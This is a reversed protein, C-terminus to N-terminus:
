RVIACLLARILRLQLICPWATITWVAKMAKNREELKALYDALRSDHKAAVAAASPAEEDGTPDAASVVALATFQRPSQAESSVESTAAAVKTEQLSGTGAARPGKSHASMTGSALLRRWSEEREKRQAARREQIERQRVRQRQKEASDNLASASTAHADPQDDNVDTSTVHKQEETATTQEARPTLVDDSSPVTLVEPAAAFSVRQPSRPEAHPSSVAVVASVTDSSDAEPQKDILARGLARVERHIRQRDRELLDYHQSGFASHVIPNPSTPESSQAQIAETDGATPEVSAAAAPTRTPPEPSKEDAQECDSEDDSGM